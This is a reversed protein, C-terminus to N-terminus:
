GISKENSFLSSWCRRQRREAFVADDYDFTETVFEGAIMDAGSPEPRTKSFENM